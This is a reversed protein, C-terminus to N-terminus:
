PMNSGYVPHESPKFYMFSVPKSRVERGDALLVVITFDHSSTMPANLRLRWRATTGASIDDNFPIPIRYSSGDAQFDFTKKFNTEEDAGEGCEEPNGLSGAYMRVSFPSSKHHSAGNQDTWDYQLSGRLNLYFYGGDLTVAEALNGFRRTARASALCRENSTSSCSFYTSEIKRYQFREGALVTAFDATGLHKFDALNVSFNSSVTDGGASTFNGEVRANRVDAWGFNEFVLKTGGGASGCMGGVFIPMQVAPERDGSSKAVDIYAGAIRMPQSSLNQIGVIIPVPKYGIGLGLFTSALSWSSQEKETLQIERRGRWVDLLRQNDPYINLREGSNESTYYLLQGNSLEPIPRRDVSIGLRVDDVTADNVFKFNRDAQKIVSRSGPLENGGKWLAAFILGNATKIRGEGDRKGDLFSGDYINGATDIYVGKGDRRSRRFNGVYEDGNTLLLRGQGEMLGDSWAGRYSIGSKHFFTGQGNAKGSRFDGAYEAITASADYTASGAVRWVLKGKGAIKGAKDQAYDEAIWYLDYNLAAFPDWIEYSRRVLRKENPDWVLQNRLRWAGTSYGPLILEERAVEDPLRLIAEAARADSAVLQTDVMLLSLALVLLLRSLM